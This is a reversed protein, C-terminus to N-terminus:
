TRFRKAFETAEEALLEITEQQSLEGLAALGGSCFRKAQRVSFGLERLAHEVDKRAPVAGTALAAKVRAAAESV